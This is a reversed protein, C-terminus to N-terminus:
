DEDKSYKNKPLVLITEFITPLLWLGFSFGVGKEFKEALMFKSAVSVLWLIIWGIVPLLLLLLWWPSMKCVQLMVVNRYIPVFAAWAKKGAKKYIVCRLLTRYIFRILLIIFLIRIIKMSNVMSMVLDVKETTSLNATVDTIIEKVSVGNELKEGIKEVDVSELIKTTQETSVNNLVNATADINAEEIGNQKLIEKNDKIAKAIEANSYNKSIKKYTKTVDELLDKSIGESNITSMTNIVVNKLDEESNIETQGSEKISNTSDSITTAFAANKLVCILLLSIIVTAINKINKM